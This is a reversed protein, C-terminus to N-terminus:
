PAEIASIASTKRCRECSLVAMYAFAAVLKAQLPQALCKQNAFTTFPQIRATGTTHEDSYRARSAQPLRGLITPIPAPRAELIKSMAKRGSPQDFPVAGSQIHRPFQWLKRRVKPMDINAEGIPVNLGHGLKELMSGFVKVLTPTSVLWSDRRIELASGASKKRLAQKLLM